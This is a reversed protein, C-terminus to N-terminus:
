EFYIWRIASPLIKFDIEKATFIEGDINGLFAKSSSIKGSKIKYENLHPSTGHRGKKYKLILLPLKYFPIKDACVLNIIGDDIVAKPAPNFGSGYFGGNCLASILFDGSINKRSGDDMTMTIDLKEYQINRLSSIVAYIYAKKGISPKKHLFRYAEELVQTDFGLSTVNICLKDNIAILDIPRTRFSLAKELSFNKYDFNKAFDNGTGMPILGLAIDKGYGANVLENLSGDGGCVIAYKDSLKDKAFSDIADKIHGKYRTEVIEIDIDSPAKNTLAILDEKKIDFETKGAKSSIIFLLKKM